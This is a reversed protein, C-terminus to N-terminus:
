TIESSFSQFRVKETSLQFPSGQLEAVKLRDLFHSRDIEQAGLRGLHPTMVQIDLWTRNSKKLMAVLYLLAAKSADSKKHFMSEGAFYFGTEVGYLGGILSNGDWVEISHANGEQHLQTYATKMENTIWTGERPRISCLEIVQHFARNMTFQWNSRTLTQKLRRNIRLDAFDLIARRRPCHWLLPADETPWPFVGLRYAKMLTEPSLDLGVAVIDNLDSM